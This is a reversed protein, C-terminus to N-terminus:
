PVAAKESALSFLQIEMSMVAASQSICVAGDGSQHQRSIGITSKVSGTKEISELSVDPLLIM